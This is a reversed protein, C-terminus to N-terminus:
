ELACAGAVANEWRARVAALAPDTLLGRDEPTLQAVDDDVAELRDILEALADRLVATDTAIAVSPAALEVLEDLTAREARLFSGLGDPGTPAIGGGRLVAATECFTREPRAAGPPASVAPDEAVSNGRDRIVVFAGATVALVSLVAGGALWVRHGSRLWRARSPRASSPPAAHARELVRVRLQAPAGVVPLAGLLALPSALSSRQEGCVPCTDLHRSVRRRLAPEIRGREWGSLLADLDSCGGRGHRAVLFVELARVFRKKAKSVMVYAHDRRVGLAEALAHGDLERRVSLDLAVRDRPELMAVVDRVLQTTDEDLVPEDLVGASGLEPDEVPRERALARARRLAEHRAIAYLWPRLKEPDRLQAFRGAAIVFTDQMADSAEDRDHLVSTCFDHLPDAYRDYIAAFAERDGSGAALALTRDEVMTM